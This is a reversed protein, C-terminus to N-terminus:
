PTKYPGEDFGVFIRVNKSTPAAFSVKDDVFTFQGNTTGSAITGDVKHLTSYVLEGAMKVAVRLPMKFTGTEGSPGTIIRGAVGITMNLQGLTYNCDRAVRLITAQYRLGETTERSARKKFVRYTGTGERLTTKPCYDTLPGRTNAQRTDQTPNEPSNHPKTASGLVGNDGSTTCGALVLLAALGSSIISISYESM